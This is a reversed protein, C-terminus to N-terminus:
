VLFVFCVSVAGFLSKRLTLKAWGVVHTKKPCKEVLWYVNIRSYLTALILCIQTFLTNQIIYRDKCRCIM